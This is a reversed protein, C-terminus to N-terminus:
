YRSDELHAVSGLGISSIADSDEKCFSHDLRPLIWNGSPTILDAVKADRNLGNNLLSKFTFPKPIWKVISGEM